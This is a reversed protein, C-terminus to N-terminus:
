LLKGKQNQKRRTKKFQPEIYFLCIRVMSRDPDGKSSSHSSSFIFEQKIYVKSNINYRM